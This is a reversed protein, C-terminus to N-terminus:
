ATHSCPPRLRSFALLLHHCFLTGGLLETETHVSHRGTHMDEKKLHIATCSLIVLFNNPGCSNGKLRYHGSELALGDIANTGRCEATDQPLAAAPRASRWAVACNQSHTCDTTTAQARSTRPSGAADCGSIPRKIKFSEL